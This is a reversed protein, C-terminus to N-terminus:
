GPWGRGCGEFRSSNPSSPAPRSPIDSVSDNAMIGAALTLPSIKAWGDDRYKL